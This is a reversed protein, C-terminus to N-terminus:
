EILNSIWRNTLNRVEMEKGKFQSFLSPESNVRLIGLYQSFTFVWHPLKSEGSLKALLRGFSQSQRHSVTPDKPIRQHEKIPWLAALEHSLIHFISFNFIKFSTSVYFWISFSAAISWVRFSCSLWASLSPVSPFVQSVSPLPGRSM